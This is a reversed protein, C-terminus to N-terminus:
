SGQREVPRFSIRGVGIAEMESNKAHIEFRHLYADIADKSEKFPPIKPSKVRFRTVHIERTEHEEV